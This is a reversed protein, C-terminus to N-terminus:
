LAKKEMITFEHVKEVVPAEAKPKEQRKIGGEPVVQKMEEPSKKTSCVSGM